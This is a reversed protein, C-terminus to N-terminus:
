PLIQKNYFICNSSNPKGHCIVDSYSNCVSSLNAIAFLQLQKSLFHATVAPQKQLAATDIVAAREELVISTVQGASPHARM